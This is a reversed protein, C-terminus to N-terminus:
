EAVESEQELSLRRGPGVGGHQDTLGALGAKNYRHGWDRQTQRDMGAVQAAEARSTSELILALALMRRSTAISGVRRAARRVRGSGSREPHSQNGDDHHGGCIAHLACGLLDGGVLFDTSLLGFFILAYTM